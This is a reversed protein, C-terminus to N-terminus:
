KQFLVRCRTNVGYV